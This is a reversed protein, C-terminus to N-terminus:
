RHSPPLLLSGDAQPHLAGFQNSSRYECIAAQLPTKALGSYRSPRVDMVRAGQVLLSTKAGVAVRVATACVIGVAITLM